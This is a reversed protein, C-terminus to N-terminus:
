LYKIIKKNIQIKKLIKQKFHINQISINTVCQASLDLQLNFQHLIEQVTMSM